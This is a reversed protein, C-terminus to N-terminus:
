GRGSNAQLRADPERALADLVADLEDLSVIVADAQQGSNAAFAHIAGERRIQVTRWGMARPAIFDKACNDAVYVLTCGAHGPHAAIHEFGRHHPKWFRRGWEGTCVIPAMGRDALGLARVKNMQTPAHGDTLLAMRQDCHRDLYAAADPALAITPFHNRYLEVLMAIPPADALGLEALVSDFIRARDGTAFVRAARDAFDTIGFREAMWQGVARYGSAAFDRELYLTDDLDFVIVAASTTM